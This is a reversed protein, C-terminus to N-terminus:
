DSGKLGGRHQRRTIKLLANAAGVQVNLEPDDLLKELIVIHSKDERDALSECVECKQNKDGTQVYKLLEKEITKKQDERSHVYWASFLYVRANSDAPEKLAAIELKALTSPQIRKLHRLAYAVVFRVTSDTELLDALAAEDKADGSNALIWRAYVQIEGKGEKAGSLLEDLRESYGLKALTELAHLHDPGNTDLFADRVKNVYKKRAVVDNGQAQALVRWVGIRYEPGATKIEATFTEKVGGPYGNWLLAEAAHVKVWEHGENLTQRLVVISRQRLKERSIDSASNRTAANVTVSVLCFCCALFVFKMQRYRKFYLNRKVFSRMALNAIM